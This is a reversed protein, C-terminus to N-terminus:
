GEEEEGRKDGEQEEIQLFERLKDTIQGMTVKGALVAGKESEKTMRALNEEEEGLILIAAVDLGMSAAEKRVRDFADLGERGVTRADIIVAHFPQARYRTVAQGPDISM